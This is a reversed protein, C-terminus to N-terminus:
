LHAALESKLIAPAPSAKVLEECACAGRVCARIRKRHLVRWELGDRSHTLSHSLSLRFHALFSLRHRPFSLPLGLCSAPPLGSARVHVGESRQGEDESDRRKEREADTTRGGAGGVSAFPAGGRRRGSASKLRGRWGSDAGSNATRKGRRSFSSPM